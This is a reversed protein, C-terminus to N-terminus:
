LRRGTSGRIRWLVREWCTGAIKNCKNTPLCPCMNMLIDYYICLKVLLHKNYLLM